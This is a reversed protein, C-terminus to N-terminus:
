HCFSIHHSYAWSFPMTCCFHTLLYPACLTLLRSLSSSTQDLIQLMYDRTNQVVLLMFSMNLNAKHKHTSHGETFSMIQLCCFWMWCLLMNECRLFETCIKMIADFNKSSYFEELQGKLNKINKCLRIKNCIYPFICM